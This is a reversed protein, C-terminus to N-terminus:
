PKAKLVTCPSTGLEVRGRCECSPQRGPRKALIHKAASLFGGSWQQFSFRLSSPAVLLVLVLLLLLLFMCLLLLCRPHFLRSEVASSIRPQIAILQSPANLIRGPHLSLNAHSLDAGGATVFPLLASKNHTPRRPCSRLVIWWM